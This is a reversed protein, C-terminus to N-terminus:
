AAAGYKADWRRQQDAAFEDNSRLTFQVLLPTPDDNLWTVKCRGLYEKNGGRPGRRVFYGDRDKHLRLHSRKGFGVGDLHVNRAYAGVSKALKASAVEHDLDVYRITIRPEQEDTMTLGM